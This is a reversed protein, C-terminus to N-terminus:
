AVARKRRRSSVNQSADLADLYRELERRKVRTSARIKIVRLDSAAILYKVQRESVGLHEAVEPITLLLRESPPVDAARPM